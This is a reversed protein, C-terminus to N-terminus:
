VFSILIGSAIRLVMMAIWFREFKLCETESLTVPLFLNKCLKHGNKCNNMQTKGVCHKNAKDRLPGLFQM